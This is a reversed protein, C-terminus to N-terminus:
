NKTEFKERELDFMTRKGAIYNFINIATNYWHEHPQMQRHENEAKINACRETQNFKRQSKIM